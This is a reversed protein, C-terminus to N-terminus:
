SCIYRKKKCAYNVVYDTVKAIKALDAIKQYSEYVLTSINCNARRSQLCYLATQIVIKKNWKVDWEVNASKTTSNKTQKKYVVILVNTYKVSCAYM